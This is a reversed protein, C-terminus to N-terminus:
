AGAADMDDAKLPGLARLRARMAQDPKLDFAPPIVLTSIGSLRAEPLRSLAIREMRVPMMALMAAEYIIVEHDMGYGDAMLKEMLLSLRARDTEFHTLSIEGALGVQWLILLKAPDIRNCYILYQTAEMSQSGHTGPDLGLDAYLCDQASIGPEMRAEFGEDRAAKIAWHPVCAFIGPHGYAVLCVSQGARVAKIVADVMDRYSQPRYKGPAYHKQLSTLSSNLGSLWQECLGDVLCFVHDANVIESKAIATIQGGLVMGTGVVVLRGCEDPM